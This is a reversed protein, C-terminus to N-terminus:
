NWCLRCQLFPVNISRHHAIPPPPPLADCWSPLAPTTPQRLFSESNPQHTPKPLTRSTASFPTQLLLTKPTSPCSPSPNSFHHIRPLDNATTTTPSPLPFPLPQPSSRLILPPKITTTLNRLAAGKLARNVRRDYTSTCVPTM